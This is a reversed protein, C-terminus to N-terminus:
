STTVSLWLTVEGGSATLMKTRSVVAGVTATVFGFPPSFIKLPVGYTISHVAESLPTMPLKSTDNEVSPPVDYVGIGPHVPTEPDSRLQVHDAGAGTVVNPRTRMM